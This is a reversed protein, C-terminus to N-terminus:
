DEKKAFSIQKRIPHRYSWEISEQRKAFENSDFVVDDETMIVNLVTEQSQVLPQQANIELIYKDLGTDIVWGEDCALRFYDFFKSKNVEGSIFVGELSLVENHKYKLYKGLEIIYYLEIASDIRSCPYFQSVHIMFLYGGKICM